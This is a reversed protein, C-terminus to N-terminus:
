APPGSLAPAAAARRKDLFKRVVRVLCAFAAFKVRLLARIASLETQIHQQLLSVQTIVYHSTAYSRVDKQYLKMVYGCVSRVKDMNFSDVPTLTVDTQFDLMQRAALACGFCLESPLFEAYFSVFMTLRMLHQMLSCFFRDAKVVTVEQPTCQRCAAELFHLATPMFKFGIDQFVLFTIRNALKFKDVDNGRVAIRVNKAIHRYEYRGCALFISALCVAEFMEVRSMDINKNSFVRLATALAAACTSDCLNFVQQMEIICLVTAQYVNFQRRFM